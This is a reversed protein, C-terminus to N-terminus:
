MKVWQPSILINILYQSYGVCEFICFYEKEQKCVLMYIPMCVNLCDYAHIWVKIMDSKKLVEFSCKLLYECHECELVCKICSCIFIDVLLCLIHM